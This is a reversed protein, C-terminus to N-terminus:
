GETGLIEPHEDWFPDGIIDRHMAVVVKRNRAVMQPHIALTKALDDAADHHELRSLPAGPALPSDHTCSTEKAATTTTTSPTKSSGQLAALSDRPVMSVGREVAPVQICSDTVVVIADDSAHAALVLAVSYINLVSHDNHTYVTTVLVDGLM